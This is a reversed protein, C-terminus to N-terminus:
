LLLSFVAVQGTRCQPSQNTGLFSPLCVEISPLFPEPLPLPDRPGPSQRGAVVLGAKSLAKTGGLGSARVM